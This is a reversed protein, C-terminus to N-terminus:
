LRETLRVALRRGVKGRIGRFKPEGAVRILLSGDEASVVPIVMGDHLGSLESLSMETVGLEVSLDLPMEIVERALAATKEPNASQGSAVLEAFAAVPLGIRLRCIDGLGMVDVTALLVEYNPDDRLRGPGEISQITSKSTVLDSWAAELQTLIEQASRRYVREEIGTYGRGPINSVTHSPRAGFNLCLFSFLLPRSFWLFGMEGSPETLFTAIRDSDLLTEALEGHTQERWGMLKFVIRSQYLNSMQRSYRHGFRDVARRLTPYLPVDGPDSSGSRFPSGSWGQSSGIEESGIGALLADLEERTLVGIKRNPDNV